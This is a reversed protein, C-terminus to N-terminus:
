EIGCIRLYFELASLLCEEDFDFTNSHLPQGGTGIFAFLGKTARAYYAFDESMMVPVVPETEHESFKQKAEEFLERSNILAPYGMTEFYESQTGFMQDIGAMIEKIRNKIGDAVDDGFSRVTGEILAEGCVINRANGAEIRGINLVAPEQPDINRPIISQAAVVFYAAALLADRGFQPAAGHATKGHICVNMDCMNAMLPGAKLAIKGKSVGPWLHIGYIEDVHPCELAGEDIMRKAGGITEEAPQFIFVFNTKLTKRRAAVLGALALAVAMHGNHGCAHMCGSHTSAFSLGTKEELPLADIDARIAITKDAGADFFAKIGTQALTHISDPHLASVTDVIFQSTKFEEYSLEPIRHLEQRLRKLEGASEKVCPHLNM